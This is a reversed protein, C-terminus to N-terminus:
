HQGSAAATPAPHLVLGIETNTDHIAAGVVERLCGFVTKQIDLFDPARMVLVADYQGVLAGALVFSLRECACGEVGCGGAQVYSTLARIAAGLNGGNTFLKVHTIGLVPKEPDTM